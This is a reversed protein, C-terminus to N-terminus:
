VYASVEAIRRIILQENVRYRKAFFEIFLPSIKKAVEQETDLNAYPIGMLDLESKFQKMPVLFAAALYDADHEDVTKEIGHCLHDKLALFVKENNSDAKIYHGLEHAILFRRDIPNLERDIGITKFKDNVLIFGDYGDERTSFNRVSIGLKKCVSIIDTNNSLYLNNKAVFADILKELPESKERKYVQCM